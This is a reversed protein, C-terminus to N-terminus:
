RRDRLGRLCGAGIARLQARDRFEPVWRVYARAVAEAEPKVNLHAALLRVGERECVERATEWYDSREAGADPWCVVTDAPTGDGADAVSCGAARLGFTLM